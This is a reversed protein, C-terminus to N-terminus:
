VHALIILKLKRNTTLFSLLFQQKPLLLRKNICCTLSISLLFFKQLFCKMQGQTSKTLFSDDVHIFPMTSFPALDSRQSSSEIGSDEERKRKRSRSDLTRCTSAWSNQCAYVKFQFATMKIAMMSQKWKKKQHVSFEESLDNIWQCHENM